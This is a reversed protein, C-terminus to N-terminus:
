TFNVVFKDSNISQIFNESPNNARVVLIPVGDDAKEAQIAM